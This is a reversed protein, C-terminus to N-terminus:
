EEATKDKGHKPNTEEIEIEIERSKIIGKDGEETEKRQTKGRYEDEIENRRGENVVVTEKRGRGWIM